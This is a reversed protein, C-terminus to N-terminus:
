LSHLDSTIAGVLKDISKFKSINFNLSIKIASEQPYLKLVVKKTDEFYKYIITFRRRKGLKDVRGIGHCPFYLSLFSSFYGARGMIMHADLYTSAVAHLSLFQFILASEYNFALRPFKPILSTGGTRNYCFKNFHSFCVFVTCYFVFKNTANM